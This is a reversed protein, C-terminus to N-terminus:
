NRATKRAPHPQAGPVFPVDPHKSKMHRALQSVTRNCCPCVGAHVRRQTRKLEKEAVRRKEAEKEVARWAQDRESEVRGMQQKLNDRERRLRDAENETYSMPHGNPCYFSRKDERREEDFDATVGYQVGCNVCRSVLIKATMAVRLTLDAM